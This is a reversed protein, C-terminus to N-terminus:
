RRHKSRGGGAGVEGVEQASKEWKRHLSSGVGTRVEGV